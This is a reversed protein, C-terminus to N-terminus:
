TGGGGPTFIILLGRFHGYEFMPYDYLSDSKRKVIDM